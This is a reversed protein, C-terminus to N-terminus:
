GKGAAQAARRTANKRRRKARRKREKDLYAGLEEPTELMVDYFSGYRECGPPNHKRCREPRTEYRTCWGNKDLYQCKGAVIMHWRKNVIFVRITDYQVQWTLEEEDARTRPRDIPIVMDYCCLSPCGECGPKKTREDKGAARDKKKNKKKPL